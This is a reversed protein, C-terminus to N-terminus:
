TVTSISSINEFPVRQVHASTIRSLAAVGPPESELGLLDLYRRMWIAAATSM